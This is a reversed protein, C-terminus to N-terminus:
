VRGSREPRELSLAGSPCQEIQRVIEDTTAHQLTIWSRENPHFVAPLGQVCVASHICLNPQWVVTVEGNSYRKIIDTM